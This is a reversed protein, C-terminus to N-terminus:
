LIVLKNLHHVVRKRVIELKLPLYVFLSLRSSIELLFPLMAKSILLRLLKQGASLKQKIIGINEGKDNYIQYCNEFNFLNVKEDIFYSNSEFFTSKM